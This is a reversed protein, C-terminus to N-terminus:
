NATTIQRTSSLWTGILIVRRDHVVDLRSSELSSRYGCMSAFRAFLTGVYVACTLSMYLSVRHLFVTSLFDIFCIPERCESPPVGRKPLIGSAWKSLRNRTM